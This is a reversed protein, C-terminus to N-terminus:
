FKKKLIKNQFRFNELEIFSANLFDSYNNMGELLMDFFFNQTINIKEKKDMKIIEIISKELLKGMITKHKVVQDEFNFLDYRMTNEKKDIQELIVYDMVMYIFNLNLESNSVLMIMGDISDFIIFYENYMNSVDLGSIEILERSLECKDIVFNLNELKNKLTDIPKGDVLWYIGDSSITHGYLEVSIGNLVSNYLNIFQNITRM